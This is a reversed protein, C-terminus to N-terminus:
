GGPQSKDRSLGGGSSSGLQETDGLPAPKWSMSRFGRRARQVLESALNPLREYRGEAWRYEVKVNQGEIYGAESLGRRFAALLPATPGPSNSNLYGIVPM